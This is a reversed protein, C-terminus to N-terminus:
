GGIDLKEGNIKVYFQSGLKENVKRFTDRSFAFNLDAVWHNPNKGKHYESLYPEFKNLLYSGVWFEPNPLVALLEKIDVEQDNELKLELKELEESFFELVFEFYREFIQQKQELSIEEVRNLELQVWIDKLLSDSFFIFFFERLKQASRKFFNNKQKITKKNKITKSHEIKPKSCQKMNLYPDKVILQDIKGIEQDETKFINLFKPKNEEPNCISIVTSNAVKNMKILEARELKTLFRRVRNRDWNWTEALTCQSRIQQGVELNVIHNGIDIQRKAYNANLLLDIWAQAQTFPTNNKWLWHELLDRHLSIWGFKNLDTKMMKM